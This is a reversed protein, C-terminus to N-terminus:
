RIGRSRLASPACRIRQHVDRPARPRPEPQPVAPSPLIAAELQADVCTKRVHSKEFPGAHAGKVFSTRWDMLVFCSQARHLPGYPPKPSVQAGHLAPRDTLWSGLASDASASHVEDECTRPETTASPMPMPGDCDCIGALHETGHVIPSTAATPSPKPRPGDCECIGSLPERGHM